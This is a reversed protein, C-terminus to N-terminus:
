TCAFFADSNKLLLSRSAFCIKKKKQQSFYAFLKAKRRKLTVYCSYTKCITDYKTCITQMWSSTSPNLLSVSESSLHKTCSKTYFIFTFIRVDSLPTINEHTHVSKSYFSHFCKGVQLLLFASSFTKKEAEKGEKEGRGPRVKVAQQLSGHIPM